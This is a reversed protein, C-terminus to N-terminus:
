KTMSLMLDVHTNLWIHDPLLVYLKDIYAPTGRWRSLLDAITYKSGQIHTVHLQINNMSRLLWINRACAALIDDRARGTTLVQVVPLNDCNINIKKNSWMNGWIKLAVMINIMELHLQQGLPFPRTYFINGFVGGMARLYSDLYIRDTVKKTDYYIVDNHTQLFM